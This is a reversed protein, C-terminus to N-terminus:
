AFGFFVYLSAMRAQVEPAKMGAVVGGDVLLDTGTIFSSEPGLLFAAAGAIDSPTGIRKSPSTELMLRMFNGSEGKLEARGMPTSIIGPSISNIRAGCKGWTVAAQQVRCQNGRKALGYAAGSNLIASSQLAPLSLLDSAATDALAVEMSQSLQSAALSGAMSAIVVAAGGPAIVKSFEELFFAVGALDVQLIQDISAQIPSVGATYAVKTIPGLDAAFQAVTRMSEASAVDVLHTHVTFGDGRLGDAVSLLLQEDYDALLVSQGAGLRRTIAQGIGGVGIVVFVTTM